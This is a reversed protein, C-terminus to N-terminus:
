QSACVAAPGMGVMWSNSAASARPSSASDSKPSCSTVAPTICHSLWRARRVIHWDFASNTISRLVGSNNIHLLLVLLMVSMHFVRQAKYCQTTTEQLQSTQKDQPPQVSWINADKLPALPLLQLPTLALVCPTSASHQGGPGKPCTGAAARCLKKSSEHWHLMIMERCDLATQSGPRSSM